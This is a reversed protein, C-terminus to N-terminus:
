HNPLRVLRVVYVVTKESEKLEPALVKVKIKESESRPCQTFMLVRIDFDKTNKIHTMHETHDVCGRSMLGTIQCRHARVCNSTILSYRSLTHCM